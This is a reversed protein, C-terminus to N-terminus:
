GLGQGPKRPKRAPWKEPVVKQGRAPEPERHARRHQLCWARELEWALHHLDLRMGRVVWGIKPHPQWGFQIVEIGLPEASGAVFVTGSDAGFELFDYVHSSGDLVRWRAIRSAFVGEPLTERTTPHGDYFTCAVALQDLATADLAGRDRTDGVREFRWAVAPARQEGASPQGTPEGREIPARKRAPTPPKPAARRGAPKGGKGAPRGKAGTRKGPPKAKM